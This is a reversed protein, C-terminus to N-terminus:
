PTGGTAMFVGAGIIIFISSPSAALEPALIDGATKFLNKGEEETFSM